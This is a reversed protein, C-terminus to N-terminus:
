AVLILLSNRPPLNSCVMVPTNYKCVSGLVLFGSPVAEAVAAFFASPLADVACVCSSLEFRASSAFNALCPLLDEAVADPEATTVGCIGANCDAM